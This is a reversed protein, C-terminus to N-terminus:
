IINLALNYATSKLFNKNDNLDYNNLLIKIRKM